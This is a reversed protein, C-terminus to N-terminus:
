KISFIKYGLSIIHSNESLIKQYGIKWKEQIVVSGGFAFATKDQRLNMSGNLFFVFSIPQKLMSYFDDKEIKVDLSKVVIYNNVFDPSFKTYGSYLGEKNVTLYFIQNIDQFFKLSFNESPPNGLIFISNFSYFDKKSSFSYKKGILYDPIITKDQEGNSIIVKGSLSDVIEHLYFNATTLSVIRENKEKLIKEKDNLINTVEAYKHYMIVSDKRIVELEKKSAENQKYVLNAMKLQKNKEYVIYGLYGSLCVFIILAIIAYNFIKEKM